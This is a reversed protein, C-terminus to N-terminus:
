ERRTGLFFDMKMRYMYEGGLPSYRRKEEKFMTEPTM